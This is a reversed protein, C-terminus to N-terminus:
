AFDSFAQISSGAPIEQSVNRVVPSLVCYPSPVPSRTARTARSFAPAHQAGCLALAGQQQHGFEVQRPPQDGLHEDNMGHAIKKALGWDLVLVEGYEGIMVNDPKLDRHVVGMSHAYAVGDCIKQFVALLATLPYKALMAEDGKRLGTLIEDLTTGRYPVTRRPVVELGEVLAATDVRGHTEVVGLVTDRGDDAAAQGEQLMRYTKGVGAAMGLFIKYRPREPDADPM